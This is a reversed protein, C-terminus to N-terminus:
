YHYTPSPKQKMRKVTTIAYNLSLNKIIMASPVMDPELCITIRRKILYEFCDSKSIIM